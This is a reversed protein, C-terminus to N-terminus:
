DDAGDPRRRRMPVRLRDYPEHFPMVHYGCYETFVAVERGRMLAFAWNFDLTTGDEMEVTVGEAPFDGCQLGGNRLDGVSREVRAAVHPLCELLVARDIANM